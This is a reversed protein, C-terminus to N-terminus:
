SATQIVLRGPEVHLGEIGSPLRWRLLGLARPDLLVRLMVEPLRQRGLWFGEVDLRLHKRRPRPGDVGELSVRTRLSLWVGRDLWAAPLVRTLASLPPVDLLNRLPLQAALDARGEDPLRATINRFSMEATEGLHRSLFGNVEAESLTATHPRGGSARRLLDFIKQQARIGDAPSSPTGALDPTRTMQFTGWGVAGVVTLLIVITLCGFCGLRLV